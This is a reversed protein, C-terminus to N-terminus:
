MAEEWPPTLPGYWAGKCAERDRTDGFWTEQENETVFVLERTEANFVPEWRLTEPNHWEVVGDFWYWGCINPLTDWKRLTRRKREDLQGEGFGEDRGREYGEQRAEDLLTLGDEGPWFM